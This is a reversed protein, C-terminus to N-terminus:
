PTTTTTPFLLTVRAGGIDAVGSTVTGGHSEAIMKVIALGLGAGDAATQRTADEHGTASEFPVFARDSIVQPFGPGDDDVTIRVTRDDVAARLVITRRSFRLANDLLNDVAQRTRRRDLTATADDVDLQIDIGAAVARNRFLTASSLLLDRLATPELHTHLRGAHARSLLLRDDALRVLRDTEDSASELAAALETASRPRARALDLEAKLATLPTRLEHSANDLFRREARVAADLRELMANLTQALRRIEDDVDPLTLREDPGSTSIAAAQQRMREVPRLAAGAGSWGALSAVLLALPGAIIFFIVLLSLADSRDSMSSGVIIVYRARGKTVPVALLRAEHEVGRVHRQFYTPRTVGAVISSSLLETPVGPSSELVSGDPGIVEAFAEHSEILGRTPSALNLGVAFDVDMTAARSRLGTDIEDLLVAGVVLYLVTAIVGLLAAMAVTFGATVRFRIPLSRFGIM